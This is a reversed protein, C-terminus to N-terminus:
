VKNVYLFWMLKRIQNPNAESSFQDFHVETSKQQSKGARFFADLIHVSALRGDDFTFDGIM